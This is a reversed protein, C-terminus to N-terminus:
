TASKEKEKSQQRQLDLQVEKGLNSLCENAVEKFRRLRNTLERQFDFLYEMMADESILDLHPQGRDARKKPGAGERNRNSRGDEEAFYGALM